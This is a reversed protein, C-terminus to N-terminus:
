YLSMFFFMLFRCVFIILYADRAWMEVIRAELCNWSDSATRELPPFQRFFFAPPM